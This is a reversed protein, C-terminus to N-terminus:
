MFVLVSRGLRKLLSLLLLLLRRKSNIYAYVLKPDHKARAALDREYDCVAKKIAKKTMKCMRNYELRVARNKREKRSMDFWTKKKTKLLEIIEASIWKDRKM